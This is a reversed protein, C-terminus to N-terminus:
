IFQFSTGMLKNDFISLSKRSAIRLLFSSFTRVRRITIDSISSSFFFHRDERHCPKSITLPGRLLSLFRNLASPLCFSTAAFSLLAASLSSYRGTWNLSFGPQQPLLHSFGTLPRSKGFPNRCIIPSSMFSNLPCTSARTFLHQRLTKFIQLVPM